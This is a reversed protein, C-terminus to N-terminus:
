TFKLGISTTDIETSLSNYFNKIEIVYDSQYTPEPDEELLWNKKPIKIFIDTSKLRELLLCYNLLKEIEPIYKNSNNIEFISLAHLNKIAKLTAFNSELTKGNTKKKEVKELNETKKKKFM